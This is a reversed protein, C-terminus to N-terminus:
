VEGRPLFHFGVKRGTLGDKHGNTGSFLVARSAQDTCVRQTWLNDAPQGSVLTTQQHCWREIDPHGLVM